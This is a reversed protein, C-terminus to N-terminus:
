WANHIGNDRKGNDNCNVIITGLVLKRCRHCRLKGRVEDVEYPQTRFNKRNITVYNKLLTHREYEEIITCYEHGWRGCKYNNIVSRYWNVIFRILAM